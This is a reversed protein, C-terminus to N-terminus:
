SFFRRLGSLIGSETHRAIPPPAARPSSKGANDTAAKSKLAPLGLMSLVATLHEEHDALFSRCEEPGYGLRAAALVLEWEVPTNAERVLLNALTVVDVYDPLGSDNVRQLDDHGAAVGILEASFDWSKLLRTGVQSSFTGILVDLTAPDLHSCHREADLYLPLAGIDHVLGALMAQEPNLHRHQRALVYSVAAVERSHEWLAKIQHNILPHSAKFLKGLTVTMVVNRLMRYGLRSIASRLTDVAKGNAFAASNAAKIVHVSVVPDTSLAHVLHDVWVNPDDILDRIRVAVDPLTPLEIQDHDIASIVADTITQQETQM